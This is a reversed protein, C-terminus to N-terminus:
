RASFSAGPSVLMNSREGCSGTFNRQPSISSVSARMPWIPSWSDTRTVCGSLAGFTVMAANSANSLGSSPRHDHPEVEPHKDFPRDRHQEGHRAAITSNEILAQLPQVRITLREGLHHAIQDLRGAEGVGGDGLELGSGELRVGLQAVPELLRLLEFALERRLDRIARLQDFLNRANGRRRARLRERLSRLVLGLPCLRKLCTRRSGTTM